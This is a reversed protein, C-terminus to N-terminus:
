TYTTGLSQTWKAKIAFRLKSDGFSKGSPDDLFGLLLSIYTDFTTQVAHLTNGPDTMLQLLNQRERKLMSCILHADSSSPFTRKDFDIQLSAKIPNRHFWHAM